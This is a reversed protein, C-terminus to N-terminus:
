FQEISWVFDWMLRTFLMSLVEEYPKPILALIINPSM